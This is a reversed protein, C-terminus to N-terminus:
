NSFSYLGNSEMADGGYFQMVSKIFEIPVIKSYNKICFRSYTPPPDKEEIQNEQLIIFYMSLYYNM